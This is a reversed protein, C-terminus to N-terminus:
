LFFGKIFRVIIDQIADKNPKIRKFSEESKRYDMIKKENVEALKEDFNNRSFLNRQNFLRKQAKRFTAFFDHGQYSKITKRFDKLDMYHLNTFFHILDFLKRDYDGTWERINILNNNFDSHFENTSTSIVALRRIDRNLHSKDFEKKNNLFIRYSIFGYPDLKDLIKSGEFQPMDSVLIMEYYHANSYLFIDAYARKLTVIDFRQLSFRNCCLFNNIDFLLVPKTKETKPIVPVSPREFLSQALFSLPSAFLSRTSSRANLSAIGTTIALIISPTVVPLPKKHKLAIFENWLSKIM